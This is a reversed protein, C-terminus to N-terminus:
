LSYKIKFERDEIVKEACFIAVDTDSQYHLGMYLRSYCIDEHLKKLSNYSKPYANGIVELLLRSQFAHGSPFSPSNDSFSTFPFLKLKLASALQRPRPRNFHYKLKLLLPESDAIVSDVLENIKNLIAVDETLGEKFYKLLARDYVLYRKKWDSDHELDNTYKVLQNLEERTAESSNKPYGYKILEPYLADLYTQKNIKHFQEMTPTGYTIQDIWYM